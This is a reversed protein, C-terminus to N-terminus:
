GRFRTLPTGADENDITRPGPDDPAPGPVFIKPKRIEPKLTEAYATSSPKAAESAAASAPEERPELSTKAGTEAGAGKNANTIMAVVAEAPAPAPKEVKPEADLTGSDVSETARGRFNSRAEGDDVESGVIDKVSASRASASASLADIEAEIAPAEMAPMESFLDDATDVSASPPTKWEYAGLAGSARSVPHWESSVSGDPAVWMPDPEGRSARALWERARGADGNQGAEIRAMLRCIRAPPSKGLHPELASRAMAWDKAEIAAVAVAIDGEVSPPSSSVLAKVRALRDRASAGTRAHAYVLALDPHPSNRWVQGTIKTARAVNGQAALLRGAIVAAPALNPLIGNAELAYALARGQQTDEIEAALATLLYARRRDAEAKGLHRNQKAIGLTKLASRWDGERCQMEILASSSWSLAANSSLAREAFQKAAEQHGAKKAELFLGRLGLEAMEPKELMREFAQRSAIPDENLQASQAELLLTLPEDPVNKKAVAGARLAALRDGAGAAFIGRRVAENGIRKRRSEIRRAIRRPASWTLLGLWVALAFAAFFAVLMIAAIFVSTRVEYGLWEVTLNGPRDAIWSVGLAFAAVLVIYLVLRIM